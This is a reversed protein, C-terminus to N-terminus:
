AGSGSAARKVKSRSVSSGNSVSEEEDRTNILGDRISVPYINIQYLRLFRERDAPKSFILKLEGYKIDKKHM